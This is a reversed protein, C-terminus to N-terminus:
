EYTTEEREREESSHSLLENGVLFRKRAERLVYEALKERSLKPGRKLKRKFWAVTRPSPKNWDDNRTGRM